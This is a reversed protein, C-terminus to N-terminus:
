HRFSTNSSSRSGSQSDIALQVEERRAVVGKNSSELKAQIKARRPGSGKFFNWMSFKQDNLLDKGKGLLRFDCSISRPDRFLNSVNPVTAYSVQISTVCSQFMEEDPGLQPIPVVFRVPIKAMLPLCVCAYKFVQHLEPRCHLEYHGSLFTFWDVTRDVQSSRFKTVLARYQSVAKTKDSATISGHSAFYSTLQEVAPVYRDEGGDLIM